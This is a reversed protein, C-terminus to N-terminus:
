SSTSQESKLKRLEKLVAEQDIAYKSDAKMEDNEKEEAAKSKRCHYCLDFKPYV